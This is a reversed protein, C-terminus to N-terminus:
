RAGAAFDRERLFRWGAAKAAAADNVGHAPATQTDNGVMVYDRLGRVFLKLQRLQEAKVAERRTEQEPRPLPGLASFLQWWTPVAMTVREWNGCIVLLHGAQKLEVLAELRIPGHSIELTDDM